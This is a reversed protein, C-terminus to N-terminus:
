TAALYCARPFEPGKLEDHSCHTLIPIDKNTLEIRSPEGGLSNPREQCSQDLLQSLEDFGLSKIRIGGEFRNSSDSCRRSSPDAPHAGPRRHGWVLPSSATPGGDM